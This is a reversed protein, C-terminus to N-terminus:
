DQEPCALLDDDEPPEVGDVMLDRYITVVRSYEARALAEAHKARAVVFNAEELFSADERFRHDLEKEMLFRNQSAIVYQQQYDRVKRLWYAELQERSAQAAHSRTRLSATMRPPWAGEEAELLGSSKPFKLYCGM